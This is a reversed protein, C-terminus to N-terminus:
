AGKNDHSLPISLTSNALGAAQICRAHAARICQSARTHFAMLLLLVHGGRTSRLVGPDVQSMEPRGPFGSFMLNSRPVGPDVQSM